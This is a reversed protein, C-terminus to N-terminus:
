CDAAYAAGLVTGGLFGIPGATMAGATAGVVTGGLARLMRSSRTCPAGLGPAAAGVVVGVTGGIVTSVAAELFGGWEEDRNSNVIFAAGVALGAGAGVALGAGGTAARTLVRIEKEPGSRVVPSAPASAAPAAASDAAVTSDRPITDAATWTLPAFVDSRRQAAAPGAALVFLAIAALTIKM